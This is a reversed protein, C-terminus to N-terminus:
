IVCFVATTLLWYTFGDHQKAHKAEALIINSMTRSIGVSIIYQMWSELRKLCEKYQCSSCGVFWLFFQFPRHQTPLGLPLMCRRCCTWVHASQSPGNMVAQLKLKLHIEIGKYQRSDSDHWIFIIETSQWGKGEPEFNHEGINMKIAPIAM